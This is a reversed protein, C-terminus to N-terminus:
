ADRPIVLQANPCYDLVLIARFILAFVFKVPELSLNAVFGLVQFMLFNVITKKKWLIMIFDGRQEFIMKSNSKLCALNWDFTPIPADRIELTLPLTM